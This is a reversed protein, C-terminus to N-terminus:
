APRHLRLRSPQAFRDFWATQQSAETNILQDIAMRGFMMLLGSERPSSPTPRHRALPALVEFVQGGSAGHRLLDVATQATTRIRDLSDTLARFMELEDPGVCLGDELVALDLSLQARAIRDTRQPRGGGGGAGTYSGRMQGSPLVDLNNGFIGNETILRKSGALICTGLDQVVPARGTLMELQMSSGLNAFRSTHTVGNEETYHWIFSLAIIARGSENLLIAGRTADETPWAPFPQPHEIIDQVLAPFRANDPVVFRLGFDPLDRYETPFMQRIIM